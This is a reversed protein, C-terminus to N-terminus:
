NFSGSRELFSVFYVWIQRKKRSTQKEYIFVLKNDDYGWNFHDILDRIATSFEESSTQMQLTYSNLTNNPIMSISMHPIHMQSLITHLFLPSQSRFHTLGFLYNTSNLYQCVLIFSPYENGLFSSFKCKEFLKFQNQSQYTITEINLKTNTKLYIPSIIWEQEYEAILSEIHYKLLPDNYDIFIVLIFNTQKKDL